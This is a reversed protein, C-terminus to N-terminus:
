LLDKMELHKVNAPAEEYEEFIEPHTCSLWVLFNYRNTDRSIRRRQSQAKQVKIREKPDTPLEFDEDSAPPSVPRKRGARSRSRSRSRPAPAPGFSAPLRRQKSKTARAPSEFFKRKRGRGPVVGATRIADAVDEDDSEVEVVAVPSPSAPGAAGVAAAAAPPTGLPSPPSPVFLRSPRLGTPTEPVFRRVASDLALVAVHKQEPTHPPSDAFDILNLSDPARIVDLTAAIVEEEELIEEEIYETPQPEAAKVVQAHTPSAPTAAQEREWDVYDRHRQLTEALWAAGDAGPDSPIIDPSMPSQPQADEYDELLDLQNVPFPSTSAM